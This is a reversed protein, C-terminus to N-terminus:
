LRLMARILMRFRAGYPPALLGAGNWEAQRFVPMLHSMRDFGAQGHYAGMGSDGVGGFPLDHQAIHLLTDNVSVGGAAVTALLLRLTEEDRSFPYFALPRPRALIHDAAERLKGYPILPLIPGFIEQEALPGQPDTVIMPPMLRASADPPAESLPHLVAGGARAAELWDALRAFQADNIIRCYDPNAALKPYHRGVWDRALAIFRDSQGRPLLVYDPAICTQGANLLKGTMIRDVAQELPADPAILAPSKGGLELTVPTLNRSAAQMVKRGIATSGTFLLHDFPLATFEEALEPGGTVVSLLDPSFHRAAAEAFTEAFAPAHESLKIMARNGAAFAATLPGFSLFIPYNWPVVIGVVGLPRPQIHARAPRFWLGTGVPRRRMWGKGHRLAHRIGDLAPFVEALDTEAQPRQGFDRNLAAAFRHRNSRLMRALLRLREARAPWDPIADAHAASQLAAFNEHM